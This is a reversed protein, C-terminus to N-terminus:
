CTTPAALVDPMGLPRSVAPVWEKFGPIRMMVSPGLLVGGIVEAIVRPQQVLRLPYHLLQCFLIVIVAQIIFLTIPNSAVYKIPNAGELVGAQPPAIPGTSKPLASTTATTTLAAVVAQTIASAM